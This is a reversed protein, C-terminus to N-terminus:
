KEEVIVRSQTSLGGQQVKVNYIGSALKSVPLNFINSLMLMRPVVSRGSNDFIEVYVPLTSSSTIILKSFGSAPNPAITAKLLGNSLLPNVSTYAFNDSNLEQFGPVGSIYRAVAFNHGDTYGAMIIKGDSQLSISNGAEAGKFDTHVRGNTGFSSDVIGTSKYRVLGFDTYARTFTQGGLLISGNSEIAVSNGFDTSGSALATTVLGGGAFKNDLTGNANYRLLLFNYTTGTYAKGGVVIKGNSQLAVCTAYINNMKLATYAIGNTGFTNDPTGDSNFRMLIVTHYSGNYTYGVVVIKNDSQVVISTIDDYNKAIDKTIKGGTGFTNDLDGNANYRAIAFDDGTISQNTSGAVVIKGNAQIAMCRAIDTGSGFSTSQLGDGSFSNDATGNAKLRVVAFDIDTGNYISGAAVIKGDTQVKVAYARFDGSYKKLLKGTSNFTSDPNGNTRYRTIALKYSSPANFASTSATWDPSYSYGAVIVKGDKQVTSAFAKDDFIGLQTTVLGTTQFATNISGDTNYSALAFSSASTGGIIISNDSQVIVGAVQDYQRLTLLWHAM